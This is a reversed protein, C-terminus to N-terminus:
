FAPLHALSVSFYAGIIALEQSKPRAHPILKHGVEMGVPGLSHGVPLPGHFIPFFVRGAMSLSGPHVHSYSVRKWQREACGPTGNLVIATLLKLNPIAKEVADLGLSSGHPVILQDTFIWSRPWSQGQQKKELEGTGETLQSWFYGLRSICVRDKDVALHHAHVILGTGGTHPVGILGYGDFALLDHLQPGVLLDPRHRSGVSPSKIQIPPSQNGAYDLCVAVHVSTCGSM